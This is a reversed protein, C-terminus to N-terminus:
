RFVFTKSLFYNIVLGALSGAMIGLVPQRNVMAYNAVLFFFLGRNVAFGASNVALFRLWQVHMAGRSADRFTWWRNVVWNASAAVLFGLVGAAYVGVAARTGYVTGTDWCFGFCGVIGFRVFAASVGLRAVVWAVVADAQAMVWDM